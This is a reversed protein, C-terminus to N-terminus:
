DAELIEKLAVRARHLHSNVAGESIGMVRAIEAVSFDADYFLAAAARQRLPLHKLLSLFDARPAWEVTQPARSATGALRELLRSARTLARRYDTARNLAVRFLWAEINGMAAVEDWHKYLQVFADQAVDAALERDLLISTLSRVLREATRDVVQEFGEDALAAPQWPSSPRAETDQTQRVQSGTQYTTSGVRSGLRQPSTTLKVDSSAGLSQDGAAFADLGIKEPRQHVLVVSRYRVM